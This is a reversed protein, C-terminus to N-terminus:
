TVRNKRGKRLSHLNNYFPHQTNHDLNLPLSLQWIIEKEIEWPRYYTCWAVKANQSMWESLLKEDDNFHIRGDIRQLNINLNEHESLLCGLSLRLTSRSANNSPTKGFHNQIRKRLNGNGGEKRPSIGVYMLYYDEFQVCGEVPVVVPLNRFYWAYLGGCRPIPSDKRLAVERSTLAIPSCLSSVIASIEKNQDYIKHKGSESNGEVVFSTEPDASDLQIFWRGNPKDPRQEQGHIRGERLLRRLNKGSRTKSDRLLGASDLWNAAEVARIEKRQEKLLKEQLFSNIREIDTM